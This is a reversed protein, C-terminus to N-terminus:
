DTESLSNGGVLTDFYISPHDFKSSPKVEFQMWRDDWLYGKGIELELEMMTYTYMDGIYIVRLATEPSTGDGSLSIIHALSNYRGRLSNRVEWPEGTETAAFLTWYLTTLSVPAFKLIQQGLAYALEYDDAMIARQMDEEGDIAPTYNEQYAFGYYAITCERMTPRVTGATFKDLIKRYEVPNSVITDFGSIGYNEDQAASVFPLMALFVVTALRLTKM